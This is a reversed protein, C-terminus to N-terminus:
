QENKFDEKVARELLQLVYVPPISKGNEWNEITRLPINYKEGFAKQTLGTIKRILRVKAYVDSKYM